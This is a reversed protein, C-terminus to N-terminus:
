LLGSLATATGLFAFFGVVDTVTTLFISSSSAPDQGFRVLTVPILTGAVAAIAMSSIMAITIIIPLGVGGDWIYVAVATVLAIGM